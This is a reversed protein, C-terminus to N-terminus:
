KPIDALLKLDKVDAFELKEVLENLSINNSKRYMKTMLIRKLPKPKKEFFMISTNVVANEFVPQPRVSFSSIKILSCDEEILKHLGSMSDSSTISMPVIFHINSKFNLISLGKEVFLSFTDISGKQIGKITKASTYKETFYKKHSASLEAGYPPNGIVVDFGEKIGFMWEPDFWDSSKNQDYLDFDAIKNADTAKYHNQILVDAIQKRIEKDKKICALKENRTKASFHEHRVKLLLKKLPEIFIEEIGGQNPKDLGILTNASV